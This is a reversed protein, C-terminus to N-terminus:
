LQTLFAANKTRDTKEFSALYSETTRVDSHGLSESIYSINVGSRKLMTAFSHRATYTSIAPIGIENGITKMRMNIRKTLEKTIVKREMESEKGNLYPFIYNAEENPNGWRKIIDLIEPLLTVRIERRVKSTRETKQRVFCIEEDVINSYKLKVMDAVNLGNCLYIFLWLDRYKLNTENDDTYRMIKGLQEKNLAKKRGEGTKIEFRGKGFPYQSEKIMGARRAENVMTRLNRFHIGVTTQNKTKLWHKEIKQLWAVSLKDFQIESGAFEEVLKLTQMYIQMTGIRNDDKLMQIKAKLANNLTDGYARGMRSDLAEFSFNGKELLMEVNWKVLSFSNEIEERLHKATQSKNTPLKEWDERTISKGTQYYVRVRKMNVRIKIPYTGDARKSRTDIMSGVTVLDKSYLYM